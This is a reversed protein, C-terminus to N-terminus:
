STSVNKTNKNWFWIIRLVRYNSGDLNTILFPTSTITIIPIIMFFNCGDFLNFRVKNNMM